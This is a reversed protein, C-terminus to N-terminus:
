RLGSGITRSALVADEITRLVVLGERVQLTNLWLMVDPRRGDGVNVIPSVYAESRLGPFGM